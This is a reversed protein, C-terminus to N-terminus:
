RSMESSIPIIFKREKALDIMFFYGKGADRDAQAKQAKKKAINMALVFMEEALEPTAPCTLTEPGFVVFPNPKLHTPSNALNKVAAKYLSRNNLATTELYSVYHRANDLYFGLFAHEPLLCILPQLGIRRLLSALVLTGDICNAQRSRIVDDFFRIRQSAFVGNGPLVPESIDSYVIGRKQLAWWIALVQRLVQVPDQSQMGDFNSVVGTDLAERLIADIMPHDENAYAALFHTCDIVTGSPSRYMLPMIDVPQVLVTRTQEPLKKGDFSLNWSVNVPYVQTSQRLAKFKWNARVAVGWLGAKEIRVETVSPEMLEDCRIELRVTKGAPSIVAASYPSNPYAGLWNEGLDSAKSSQRLTPRALEICPFLQGFFVDLPEWSFEPVAPGGPPAPPRALLTSIHEALTPGLRLHEDIKRDPYPPPTPFANHLAETLSPNRLEPVTQRETTWYRKVAWICCLLLLAALAAKWRQRRPAPIPNRKEKQTEM